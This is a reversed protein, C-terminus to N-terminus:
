KLLKSMRRDKLPVGGTQCGPCYFIDREAYSVWAVPTGCRPCPEGKHDHVSYHEVPERQPLGGGASERLLVIQRAPVSRVAEHLGRLGADDVQDTRKLPSLRAEWLIEDSLGNGIGAIARQDTLFTKLHRPTARAAAAFAEATLDDRTPDPGLLRLERVDNLDDALWLRARKETGHEILCLSSGDDLALRASVNKPLPAAKGAAKAAGRSGAGSRAAPPAEVVTLRGLRMLHIVIARRSETEFVLYKGVRTPLSLYEGHFSEPAPSASQLLAPQRVEISAIRRGSTAPALNEALIELFPLEPV